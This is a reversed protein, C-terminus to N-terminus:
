PRYSTLTFNRTVREVVNLESQNLLFQIMSLLLILLVFLLDNILTSGMRIIIDSNKLNFVQLTQHVLAKLTGVRKKGIHLCRLEIALLEFFLIKVNLM